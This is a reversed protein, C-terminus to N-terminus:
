VSENEEEAEAELASRRRGAYAIYSLGISIFYLLTMPLMVLGMNIPDVTPTIAAAFISIIVIAIRWQEVLIKPKVFGIATLAYIVLPFEFSVGLWFMLGTVFGYYSNPRWNTAFGMFQNFYQMAGIAAPLIFYTFAVGGSFLVSALPIGLLGIKKERPRLGPAAFRWFEIAIFPVALIIGGILAIKMFVGISETVEIASLSSTSQLPKALLVVMDRTFFSAVGIGVAIWLVSRLLHARFVDVENWLQERTQEDTVVGAFIDALNHEEPEENLFKSFRGVAWFPFTIVRWLSKFFKTM